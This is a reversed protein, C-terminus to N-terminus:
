GRQRLCPTRHRAALWGHRGTCLRSGRTAFRKHAISRFLERAESRTLPRLVVQVGWSPGGPREGGRLSAMLAVGSVGALQAFLEETALTDAEWPTEANDLAVMAPAERLVALVEALPDAAVVPLGLVRALETVVTPASTAAECRVFWRRVGFREAVQPHHLTALMLNTKGIGPPGLVLTPLPPDHILKAVAARLEKARGLTARPAPLGSTAGPFSPRPPHSPFAPATSREPRERGAAALLRRRAEAEDVGVFDVYTRTRDLGEPSFEAVRVPLLAGAPGTPDASFAASWKAISFGSAVYAPSLVAVTRLSKVARRMEIVWDSGPPFDWAQVLVSYGAEGLCWSVWEAWGRDVSTYSVFFDAPPETKMEGVTEGPPVGALAIDRWETTLRQVAESRPKAAVLKTALEKVWGDSDAEEILAYVVESLGDNEGTFENIEKSFGDRVFRRLDRRERFADLLAADLLKRRASTLRM